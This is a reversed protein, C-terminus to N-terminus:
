PTKTLKKNFKLACTYATVNVSYIHRLFKFDLLFIIDLTIIKNLALYM